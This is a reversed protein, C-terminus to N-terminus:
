YDDDDNLSDSDSYGNPPSPSVPSVVKTVNASALSSSSSPSSSSLHDDRLPIKKKVIRKPDYDLGQKSEADMEDQIKKSIIRKYLNGVKRARLISQAEVRKMDTPTFFKPPLIFAGENNFIASFGNQTIQGISLLSYSCTPVYRVNRINVRPTLRLIGKKDSITGATGNFASIRIRDVTELERLIDKQGTISVAAGTDFLIDNSTPLYHTESAEGVASNVVTQGEEEVDVPSTILCGLTYKTMEGADDDQQNFVSANGNKKWKDNKHPTISAANASSIPSSPTISPTNFQNNSSGRFGGRAGRFGGRSSGSSPSSNSGGMSGNSGNSRETKKIWWIQLQEEIEAITKPHDHGKNMILTKVMDLEKPLRRLIDHALYEEKHDTWCPVLQKGQSNLERYETLFVDPHDHGNYRLDGLKTMITQLRYNSRQIYHDQVLLLLGYANYEGKATLGLITPLHYESSSDKMKHSIVSEVGHPIASNIYSSLTQHTELYGRERTFLPLHLNTDSFLKWSDAPEATLIGNYKPLQSVNNILRRKWELFVEPQVGALPLEKLAPLKNTGSVDM